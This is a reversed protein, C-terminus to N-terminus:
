LDGTEDVAVGEVVEEWVMKWVGWIDVSDELVAVLGVVLFRNAVM